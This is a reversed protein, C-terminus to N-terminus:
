IEKEREKRQIITTYSIASEIPFAWEIWLPLSTLLAKKGLKPTQVQATIGGRLLVVSSNKMSNQTQIPNDRNLYSGFNAM